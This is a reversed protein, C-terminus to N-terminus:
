DRTLIHTRFGEEGLFSFKHAFLAALKEDATAFFIQRRGSAALDRLYDLFSLTNLDDVHAVPDDILMVPPARYARANLALFLSLAFAARQGSSVQGLNIPEHSNRRELPAKDSSSVKFEHPAHIREFISAVENRNQRLVDRSVAELSHLSQINDLVQEATKYRTLAGEAQRKALRTDDLAKQADAIARDANSEAQVAARLRAQVGSAISLASAVAPLSTTDEIALARALSDVAKKAARLNGLRREISEEVQLPSLASSLGAESTITTTVESVGAAKEDLLASESHLEKKREEGSAILGRLSDAASEDAIEPVRQRLQELTASNFGSAEFERLNQVIGDLEGRLRELSTRSRHLQALASSLTADDEAIGSRRCFQILQDLLLLHTRASDRASETKSLTESLETERKTSGADIERFMHIKLQGPPFSTHCLPCTDPDSAHSIMHGAVMRLEQALAHVKGQEEKFAQFLSKAGDMAATLELLREQSQKRLHALPIPVPEGFDATLRVIDIGGIERTLRATSARCEDARRLADPYGSEMYDALQRFEVQHGSLKTLAADVQERSKALDALNKRLSTIRERWTENERITDELRQPTLEAPLDELGLATRLASDMGAIDVRSGQKVAEDKTLPSGHWGLQSLTASLQAFIEDSQRAVGKASKLREEHATVTAKLSDIQRELSRREPPVREAIREIRGWVRAAEAGTLLTALDKEREAPNEDTSLHVAADTNLFNYIGFAEPLPNGRLGLKGYWTLARDRFVQAPTKASTVISTRGDSLVGEIRATKPVGPRRTAGCYFYEIAELLTTKGVGNVGRILNVKGFMFARTAPYTRFVALKIQQLPASAIPDAALRSSASTSVTPSQSKPEEGISRIVPAIDGDEFVGELGAPRMVSAWRSLIDVPQSDVPRASDSAGEIRAVLEEPTIVFKRAYNRDAELTARASRFSSNDFQSPEALLLLYSNWRLDNRDEFYHRGLVRDQFESLNKAREEVKGTLDIYFIAFPKEHYHREGCLVGEEVSRIAHLRGKLTDSVQQLNLAM